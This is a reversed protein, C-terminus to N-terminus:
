RCLQPRSGCAGSEAPPDAVIEFLAFVNCGQTDKVIYTGPKVFKNEFEDYQNWVFVDSQGPELSWALFAFIKPFVPKEEPYTLIQWAPYGGIDVTRNGINELIITINEGLLYIYKDTKLRLSSVPKVTVNFPGCMQGTYICVGYLQYTGPRPPYYEGNEYRYLNWEITTSYNEGPRLTLRLFVQIFVKDDSWKYRYGDPSCCIIDFLPPTYDITVTQNGVNRLSLTIEVNEGVIISRKNVEMEFRIEGMSFSSFSISTMILLFTLLLAMFFRTFGFM